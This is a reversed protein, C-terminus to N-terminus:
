QKKRANSFDISSLFDLSSQSFSNNSAGGAPSPSEYCFFLLTTSIFLLQLVFCHKYLM